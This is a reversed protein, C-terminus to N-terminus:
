LDPQHQGLDRKLVKLLLQGDMPSIKWLIATDSNFEKVYVLCGKLFISPKTFLGVEANRQMGQGTLNFAAMDLSIPYLLQKFVTVDFL